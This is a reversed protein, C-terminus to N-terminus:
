NSREHPRQIIAMAKAWSRVREANEIKVEIEWEDEPMPMISFWQSWEILQDCVARLRAQGFISIRETKFHLACPQINM